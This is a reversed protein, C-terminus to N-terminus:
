WYHIPLDERSTVGLKLSSLSSTVSSPHLSITLKGHYRDVDKLGALINCCDVCVNYCTLAFISM